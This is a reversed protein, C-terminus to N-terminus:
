SFTRTQRLSITELEHCKRHSSVSPQARVWVADEDDVIVLRDEGEDAKRKSLASHRHVRHRTGGLCEDCEVSRRRVQHDQVDHHRVQGSPLQKAPDSLSARHRHHHQATPVGLDVLSAPEVETGVIVERLREPDELEFRTNARKQTACADNVSTVLPTCLVVDHRIAIM